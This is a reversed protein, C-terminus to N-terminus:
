YMVPWEADYITSLLLVLVSSCFWVIVLLRYFISLLIL